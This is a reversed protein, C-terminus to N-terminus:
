HLRVDAYTFGKYETLSLRLQERSNKQITISEMQEM